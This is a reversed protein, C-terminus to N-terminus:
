AESDSIDGGVIRKEELERIKAGLVDRDYRAAVKGAAELMKGTKNKLLSVIELAKMGREEGERCEVNLLQLLAKDVDLALNDLVRRQAATARTASVMDQQLDHLVASRVYLEELKQTESEGTAEADDTDMADTSKEASQSTLPVKFEFDSLLPRPFRPYKDEGKLIICQFKNGAVAVPWYHETKRGSALRALLKTDLLPVWQAQGPNRWHLLVLLTGTSDYICPDGNDSFFVNQLEAGESIALIDESQYVEDRKINQITYLLRTRGDGGVPGNGVTMVYDRWAACTVTPSAKQRYVRLPVGFLSYIRVYNASTTVVIYSSSLAIAEIKEGRPLSVRWDGRTSTWHEHPRYHVVACDNNRTSPPCSLLVGHENLCAKDYLDLDTFHGGRAFERDYFEITVEHHTDLDVTWVVGILNVCLYRRDRQWPTSGPQFSDHFRPSWLGQARRKGDHGDITDLHANSRKGHGNIAVYGAGDDDEIFDDSLGDSGMIDDLSDPTGDRIGRSLKVGNALPKQANGSIEELPDHIFPAHEMSQALLAAHDEPVIDEHIYLEGDNNTYSLLNQSPHWHMALITARLDEYTKIIKQTKTEWLVLRRDSGATALLAGNPSWALATIDGTHGNQFSRQMAWDGKSM